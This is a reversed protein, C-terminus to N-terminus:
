THIHSNSELSLQTGFFQDKSSHHQLLSKLTRQLALLNLWDQVNMSLVSASASASVGFKQGSLCLVSENSFISISLYISPLLLLSCCLLLQNSPMMSEISMLRLLGWSIRFSLPLRTHRLGHSRLTPCLQAVSCCCSSLYQIM